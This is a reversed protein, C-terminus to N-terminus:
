RHSNGGKRCISFIVLIILLVLVIALGILVGEEYKAEWTSEVTIEEVAEKVAEETEPTYPIRSGRVLLRHTNVGFPTCTVLTVLDKGPEIGLYSTDYPLVVKIQDVCYAMREDLVDVYFVDGLEMQDLDSLMKSSAMGSHGSLIAHTSEGGVPLSSGLLHGLGIELTTDTTGHYVPLQVQIKPIQLYAMIGNGLLDLQESYDSAAEQISELSFAESDRVGPVLLSNYGVALARVRRIESQDAQELAQAYETHIQSQHRDNYRVSLTPYLTLGLACCFSIAALVITVTKRKLKLSSEKGLFM